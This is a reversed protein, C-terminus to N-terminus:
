RVLTVSGTKKFDQGNNFNGKLVYTYVGLPLDEGENNLKGNWGAVAKDYSDAAYVVQGWRNYISLYFSTNAIGSGYVRFHSNNDNAASPSLINPVWVDFLNNVGLSLSDIATCGNVNVAFLKVNFTGPLTYNHSIQNSGDTISPTGDGFNWTLTKDFVSTQSLVVPMGLNAPNPNAGAIKAVPSDFFTYSKSESVVPCGNDAKVEVNITAPTSSASVFFLTDKLSNHNDHEEELIVNTGDLVKWTYKVPQDGTVLSAAFPIVGSKCVQPPVTLLIGSPSKKFTVLRFDEASACLNSTNTVIVSYSGSAAVTRLYDAAGAMGGIWTYSLPDTSQSRNANLVVSTGDCALTDDGLDVIPTSNVNVSIKDTNGICNGADKVSVQYELLGTTAPTVIQPLGNTGTMGGDAPATWKYTYPGTGGTVSKVTIYASNGQCISTDNSAVIMPKTSVTITVSDKLVCNSKDTVTMVYKTPTTTNTPYAIPNVISNNSLLPTTQNWSIVPAPDTGLIVTGTNLQLQEGECIIATPKPNFNSIAFGTTRVITSVTDLCGNQDSVKAIYRTTALPSAYPNWVTNGPSLATNPSWVFTYPASGGTAYAGLLVKSQPCVTVDKVSVSPVPLPHIIYKITDYDMCGKADAISVQWTRGILPANIVQNQGSLSSGSPISTWVFNYPQIGPVILEAKLIVNQGLCVATDKGASISPKPNVTITISDSTGCKSINNLVILRYTVTSLPAVSASVPKGLVYPDQVLDSVPTWTYAWSASYTNTTRLKMTYGACITTDNNIAVVPPALKVLNISAQYDCSQPVTDTILVYYFLSTTVPAAVRISDQKVGQAIITGGINLPKQSTWIYNKFRKPAYLTVSDGACVTTNGRSTTIALGKIPRRFYVFVTDSVTEMCSYSNTLNVNKTLTLVYVDPKAFVTDRKQLPISASSGFSKGNKTWLWTYEPATQNTCYADIRAVSTDSLCIIVSKNRSIKRVVHQTRDVIYVNKHNDMAMGAPTGFTANKKGGDINSSIGQRGLVTTVNGQPTLTRFLNNSADSILLSGGALLNGPKNFTAQDSSVAVGIISSNAGSTGAVGAIRGAKYTLDLYRIVQNGQDSVYINAGRDMAIGWPNSFKSTGTVGNSYGATGTGGITIVKGDPSIKRISHNAFDAVYINGLSDAYIEKPSNFKANYLRGDTYGGAGNPTGAIAYVKNAAFDVKSIFNGTENAIFLNGRKDYTLGTPGNLNAANIAVNDVVTSAGTGIFDTVAYNSLSIKRVKNNGKDSVYLNGKYHIIDWPENFSAATGIGNVAGPIGKTGAITVIKLTDYPLPNTGDKTINLCIQPPNVVKYIRNRTLSCGTLKSTVTLEYNYSSNVILRAASDKDAVNWSFRYTLHSTDALTPVMAATMKDCASDATMEWGASALVKISFDPILTAPSPSIVVTDIGTCGNIDTTSLVYTGATTVIISSATNPPVPSLPMILRSWNFVTYNHPNAPSLVVTGGCLSRDRGLDPKCIATSKSFCPLCFVTFSLLIYFFRVM